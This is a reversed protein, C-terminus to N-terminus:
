SKEIEAKGKGIDALGQAGIYVSVLQVINNVTGEPLELVKSAVLAVLGLLFAKAKKSKLFGKM